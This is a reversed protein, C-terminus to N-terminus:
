RGATRLIDAHGAHGIATGAEGDDNRPVPKRRTEAMRARCRNAAHPFPSRVRRAPHREARCTRLTQPPTRRVVDCVPPAARM